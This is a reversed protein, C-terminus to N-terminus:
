KGWSKVLQYGVSWQIEGRFGSRMRERFVVLEPSNKFQRYDDVNRFYFFSVYPPNDPSTIPTTTGSALNMVTYHDYEMLRSCRFLEPLFTDYGASGLWNVYNGQEVLPMRYAEIHLVPRDAGPNGAPSPPGGTVYKGVEYFANWLVEFKGAFKNDRDADFARREKSEIFRWMPRESYYYGVVLYQPYGGNGELLQYRRRETVGEFKMLLDPVYVDNYWNNYGEAIEPSFSEGSIHIYPSNV